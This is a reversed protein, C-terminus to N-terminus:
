LTSCREMGLTHSPNPVTASEPLGSFTELAAPAQRARVSRWLIEQVGRVRLRGGQLAVGGTLISLSVGQYKSWGKSGLSEPVETEVQASIAPLAM